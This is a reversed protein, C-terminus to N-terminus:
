AQLLQPQSGQLHLRHLDACAFELPYSFANRGQFLNLLYGELVVTDVNQPHSHHLRHAFLQLPQLTEIGPVVLNGVVGVQTILM